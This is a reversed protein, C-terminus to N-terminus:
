TAASASSVDALSLPREVTLRLRYQISKGDTETEADSYALIEGNDLLEVDQDAFVYEVDDDCTLKDNM